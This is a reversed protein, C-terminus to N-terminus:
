KGQQRIREHAVLALKKCVIKNAECLNEWESDKADYSRASLYNRVHCLINIADSLTVTGGDFGSAVEARVM